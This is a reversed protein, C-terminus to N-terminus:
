KFYGAHSFGKYSTILAVLYTQKDYSCKYHFELKQFMTLRRFTLRRSQNYM